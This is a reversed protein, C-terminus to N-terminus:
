RRVPRHRLARSRRRRWGARAAGRGGRREAGRHRQLGPWAARDVDAAAGGCRRRRAARARRRAASRGAPRRRGSRAARRHLASLDQVGRRTGTRQLGLRSRRGPPRHRLRHRPRPGIGKDRAKTTFFPEFIREQTAADMGVGTDSVTLRVYPGAAVGAHTRAFEDDIDVNDTEITLKGGEPMADRANVALNVIIQEMQGRDVLVRRLRRARPSARSRHRRWDAPRAHARHRSVVDNLDLPQPHRVQHRGFALLQRTLATARNSAAVIEAVPTAFPHGAPLDHQMLEGYSTIVTLLNNFDHAIGGALRGIAELKQAHHLQTELRAREEEVRLRDELESACSAIATPSSPRATPSWGRCGCSVHPSSRRRGRLARARRRARGRHVGTERYWPLLVHVDWTAPTPDINWNRDM